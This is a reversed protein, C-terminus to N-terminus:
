DVRQFEEGSWSWAWPALGRRELLVLRDRGADFESGKWSAHNALWESRSSDWALQPPLPLAHSWRALEIVRVPDAFVAVLRTSDRRQELLAVDLRGDADLDVISAYPRLRLSSPYTPNVISVEGGGHTVSRVGLHFDSPGLPTFDLASRAIAEEMGSPLVLNDKAFYPDVFAGTTGPRSCGLLAFLSLCVSALRM